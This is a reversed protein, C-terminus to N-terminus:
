RFTELLHKRLHYCDSNNPDILEMTKSGSLFLLGMVAPWTVGNCRPSLSRTRTM